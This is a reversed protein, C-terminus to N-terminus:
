VSAFVDKGMKRSRAPDMRTPSDTLKGGRALPFLMVDQPEKKAKAVLISEFNLATSYCDAQWVCGVLSLEEKRELTHM